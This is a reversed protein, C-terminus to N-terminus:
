PREPLPTTMLPEKRQTPKNENCFICWSIKKKIDNTIGPWWVSQIARERCKTLGQHGEHIRNLIDERMSSPIVLRDRYILKNDIVSLQGRVSFYQKIEEPVDKARKPWGLKTFELVLRLEEDTQTAQSIEQLKNTSVPKSTEIYEVHAQVDEVTSPKEERKSPLRSLTDAVVLEKGPVYVAKANFRM